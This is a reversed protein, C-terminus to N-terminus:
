LTNAFILVQTLDEKNKVSLKHQKIFEYVKDSLAGFQAAFDKKDKAIEVVQNEIALYLKEKKVIRSSADGMDLAAVYNGKVKEVEIRSFLSWKGELVVQFFGVTQIGQFTFNKPNAFKVTTGKETDFWEFRSVGDSQLVKVKNDVKIEIQRKAVEYKLPYNEIIKNNSLYITGIYWNDSLYTSGKTEPTEYPIEDIRGTANSGLYISKGPMSQAVAHIGLLLQTGFFCLLIFKHM